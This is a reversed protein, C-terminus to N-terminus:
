NLITECVFRERNVTVAFVDAVPEVDFVVAPCDVEYEALCFDALNVVDASVVLLGVDVYYFEDDGIEVVVIICFDGFVEDGINSVPFAM